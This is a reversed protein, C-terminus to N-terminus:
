KRRQFMFSLGVAVALAAAAVPLAYDTWVAPRQYEPMTDLAVVLNELGAGASPQAEYCSCEKQFNKAYNEQLIRTLEPVVNREVLTVTCGGFGGGTMRSGHVGKVRLAVEVLFDLEECSVEYDDKLSYHSATMLKGATNFDSRKLAEVCDLTRQNEGIVHRARRYTLDDVSGRIDDLMAMSADRLAKVQPYKDKLAQVAKKCQKVRDPYESGSLQHKVNSNVVLIVPADAGAGFPVLTFDNTRCDIQLLQGTQGMASIYQDMIGCPTDAFDHEAKQCRLAKRVGNTPLSYLNELMTATAVELAASSSLGSGLPVNSAIVANFSAGESPLEDLYQFIVGKVYNGWEPQGNTVTRDAKFTMPHNKMALSYVVCPSNMATKSAVIVTKYPLAFPLVFGDNYDTHEGILNARGPAFVAVEPNSRFKERFTEIAQVLMEDVPGQSM